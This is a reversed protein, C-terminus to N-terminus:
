LSDEVESFKTSSSMNIYVDLKGINTIAIYNFFGNKDCMVHSNNGLIKIGKENLMREIKSEVLFDEIQKHDSAIMIERISQEVMSVFDGSAM